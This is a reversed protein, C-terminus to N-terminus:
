PVVGERQLEERAEDMEDLVDGLVDSDDRANWEADTAGHALAREYAIRHARLAVTLCAGLQNATIAKM